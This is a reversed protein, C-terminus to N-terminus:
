YQQSAVRDAGHGDLMGTPVPAESAPPPAPEGTPPPTPEGTTDPDLSVKMTEPLKMGGALIIPVGSCCVPALCIGGCMPLLDVESRKLEVTKPKRGPAKVTLRESEWIWMKSEYTLPTKGLEKKDAERVVTAGPPDSTIKTTTACGAGLAVAVSVALGLSIFRM